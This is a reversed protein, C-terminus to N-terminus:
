CWARKPGGDYPTALGASLLADALDQGDAEILGLVRFYKDRAIPTITVTSAALLKARLFNRAAVAARREAACPAALEPTDIGALRILLRDGFLPPLAPISITCTDGDHCGHITAPGFPTIAPPFQACAVTPFLCFLLGIYHLRTTM